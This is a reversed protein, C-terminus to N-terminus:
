KEMESLIITRYAAKQREVRRLVSPKVFTKRRRIEKLAGSKEFKKKYRRLAKDITEGDKIDILLMPFQTNKQNFNFILGCLYNNIKIQM